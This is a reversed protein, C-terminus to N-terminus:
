FIGLVGDAPVNFVDPLFIQSKRGYDDNIESVNRSLSM